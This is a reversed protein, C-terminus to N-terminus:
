DPQRGGRRPLASTVKRPFPSSRRASAFLMTGVLCPPRCGGVQTCAVRPSMCVIWATMSRARANMQRVLSGLCCIPNLCVRFVRWVTRRSWTSVSAASFAAFIEEADSGSLWMHRSKQKDRSSCGRRPLRKSLGNTPKRATMPM